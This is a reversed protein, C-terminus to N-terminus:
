HFLRSLGLLQSLSNMNHSSEESICVALSAATKQIVNKSCVFLPSFWSTMWCLELWSGQCISQFTRWSRPVERLFLPDCCLRRYGSTIMLCKRYDLKVTHERCHEGRLEPTAPRPSRWSPSSRSPPSQCSTPPLLSTYTDMICMWFRCHSKIIKFINM